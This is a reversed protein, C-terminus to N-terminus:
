EKDESNKKLMVRREEEGKVEERTVFGEKTMSSLVRTLVEFESIISAVELAINSDGASIQPKQSPICLLHSGGGKCHSGWKKLLPERWNAGLWGGRGLFFTYPAMMGKCSLSISFSYVFSSPAFMNPSYWPSFLSPTLKEATFSCCLSCCSCCTHKKWTALNLSSFRTMEMSWCVFGKNISHNYFMLRSLFCCFVVCCLLPTSWTM